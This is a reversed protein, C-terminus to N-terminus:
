QKQKPGIGIAELVAQRMVFPFTNAFREVMMVQKTDLEVSAEEDPKAKGTKYIERGLECEEINQGQMYMLNGLQLAINTTIKNGDVDRIAIKRFDVKM